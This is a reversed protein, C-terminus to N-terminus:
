RARSAPHSDGTKRFAVCYSGSAFFGSPCARREIKPMAQPTDRHLAECKDSLGVFGIPCTGTRQIRQRGDRTPTPYASSEALAPLAGAFTLAFALGALLRM